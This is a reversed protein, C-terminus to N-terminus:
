RKIPQGETLRTTALKEKYKKKLTSISEEKNNKMYELEDSQRM